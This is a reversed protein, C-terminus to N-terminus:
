ATLSPTCYRDFLRAEIADCHETLEIGIFGDMTRIEKTFDKAEKSLVWVKAKLQLNGAPGHELTPLDGELSYFGKLSSMKQYHNIPVNGNFYVYFDIEKCISNNNAAQVSAGNLCNKLIVSM